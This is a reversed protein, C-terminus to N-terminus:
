LNGALLEADVLAAVQRVDGYEALLGEIGVAYLAVEDGAGDYAHSEGPVQEVSQCTLLADALRLYGLLGKGQSLFFGFFVQAYADVLEVGLQLLCM